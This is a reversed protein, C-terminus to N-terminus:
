HVGHGHAVHAPLRGHGQRQYCRHHFWYTNVDPDFQKKIEGTRPDRGTFAGKAGGSTTEGTWVLGQAVLLDEPSRYGSPPHYATWLIEGTDIALASMTDEGKEYWSGTQKGATQGGSCLVVDKYLVLTPLYFSLIVECRTVPESRWTEDGTERDLCVVREGDHFVVRRADAALTGPLM